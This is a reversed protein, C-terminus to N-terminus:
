RKTLAITITNCNTGVESFSRAPLDQFTREWRDTSMGAVLERFAESKKTNRFETGASMIAVLQGGPKLFKLAHVVHDIDRERDFPPNMVVRDYLGTTAPDLMMFDARYVAGFIGLESLQAALAPQIEVCDVVAGKLVCRRALQGTGASPELVRLKPAGDGRYLHVREMVRDAVADPTPFFGYRKAPTTKFNFIDGETSDPERDEPIPANYYEGLLKNVKELLDDRKFWVHANGNKFARVRFYETEIFTQQAGWGRADSLKQVMVCAPPVNQEDLIYFVREIDTFTDRHNRNYNWSGYENFAYTLIVRAGIEWGDHSKFRRDLNSFCEAIGRRWIMGADAMFQQLTAIVNDETVEPPDKLLDQRLQDKATKDMLRELDAVAILQSWIEIDVIRRAIKMYDAGNPIDPPSHYVAKDNRSHHNYSNVEGGTAYTLILNARKVAETADTLKAHAEQFAALAANRQNILSTITKRPVLAHTM